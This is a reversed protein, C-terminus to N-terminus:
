RASPWTCGPLSKAGPTAKAMAPKGNDVHCTPLLGERVFVARDPDNEVTFDVVEAVEAAPEFAGAVLKAGMAIGLGDDVEVLLFPRLEDRMQVAHEGQGKPVGLPLLQDEGAIPQSLLRENIPVLGAPQQEGALQLAQQFHRAHRALDVRLGEVLIQRILVHRVRARNKPSDGLQRGTM